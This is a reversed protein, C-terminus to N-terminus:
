DERSDHYAICGKTERRDDDSETEATSGCKPCADDDLDDYEGSWSCESCAFEGAPSEWPTKM